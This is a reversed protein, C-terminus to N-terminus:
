QLPSRKWRMAVGETFLSSSMAVSLPMARVLICTTPILRTHFRLHGVMERLEKLLIAQASWPLYHPDARLEADSFKLVAPERMLDAPVRTLL